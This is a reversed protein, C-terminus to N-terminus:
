EPLFWKRPAILQNAEEPGWSGPEYGFVADHTVLIPEVIEWTREIGDARTFLTRDGMLADHILREYAGILNSGFSGSYRFDMHAQDLEISPGPAKALFSLRLGENPGLDITFHDHDFSRSRVDRFMQRPPARFALTVVQRSEALKKGTRLYFPVGAWRWNDVSVEVAAFTETNSNPAVGKEDRYGQYQGYVVRRADISAMSEFVKAVEDMLSKPTFSAPPEIAIFSLVQFLHTVVMDRMAGVGEYFGARTGIGLTEPIDIQVHDIHQRNWVPEFMGNAFRLALINQVTEKGIFHDIRYVQDDNLSGRVVADLERFSALDSGFPKEFVVRSNANLGSKALGQTIDPFASPPVSLYFLRQASDGLEKEARYVDEEVESTNDPGFATPAYSLRAAFPEWGEDIKCRGYKAVSDRALDVFEEDTVETRSSGIIRFDEPMMGERYLHYLSPLLKRRSLDGNAGFIVIVHKEPTLTAAM